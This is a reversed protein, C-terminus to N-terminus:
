LTNKRSLKIAQSALVILWVAYTVFLIRIPWGLPVDPGYANDGLPIVYLSLHVIFGILGALPLAATSLLTKKVTILAKNKFALSLNILLAAFPLLMLQCLGSFMHIMGRTTMADPPTDLPDTTFIGVCAVAISCILLLGLGMYGIFGRVQPKIAVFLFAYSVASVVFGISMIWGYQGIAYESITHWYPDLDSRIWIMAFFLIQYTIVAAISIRAAKAQIGISLNSFEDSIAIPFKTSNINQM